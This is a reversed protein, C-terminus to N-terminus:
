NANKAQEFSDAIMQEEEKTYDTLFYDESTKSKEV